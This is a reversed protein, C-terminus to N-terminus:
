GGPSIFGAIRRCVKLKTVSVRMNLDILSEALFVMELRFFWKKSAM